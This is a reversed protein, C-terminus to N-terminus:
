FYKGCKDEEMYSRLTKSHFRLEAPSLKERYISVGFYHWNLVNAIKRLVQKKNPHKKM